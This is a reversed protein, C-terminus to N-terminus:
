ESSQLSECGWPPASRPIPNHMQFTHLPAKTRVPLLNGDFATLSVKEILQMMLAQQKRDLPPM